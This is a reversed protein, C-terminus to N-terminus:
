VIHKLLEKRNMDKESKNLTRILQENHRRYTALFSDCYGIRFGAKLVRLNFDYEELTFAESGENFKVKEFVEKRYMLAASHIPNRAIIDQMTPVKVRPRFEKTIGSNMHLEFANGHVFDVGQQEIAKVADEIANPTLMDDEHLWRVYDGSADPLAKNFNVGWHADGKSLLLQVGEPISNVADKLWGRDRNYPIIVTVRPTDSVAQFTAEVYHKVWPVNVADFIRPKGHFCIVHAHVPVDNIIGMRRIKGDHIHPTLQQFFRDPKEIVRRIYNDM